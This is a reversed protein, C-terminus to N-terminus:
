YDPSIRGRRRSGRYKLRATYGVAIFLYLMVSYQMASTCLLAVIMALFYLTAKKDFIHSKVFSTLGAAYFVGLYVGGYALINLLGFTPNGKITTYVYNQYIADLNYFGAGFVPYQLFTKWSAAIDSLRIMMSGYGTGSMKIQLVLYIIWIGLIILFPSFAVLVRRVSRAKVNFYYYLSILLAGIIIGKASFTTLLVVMLVIIVFKSQKKKILNWFLTYVLVSAYGPAEMFIGVNRNVTRNLVEQNQLPNEFYINFYSYGTYTWGNNYYQVTHKPMIGALTGCFYFILSIFAILFVVRSYKDLFSELFNVPGLTSSLMVLVTIPLIMQSICSLVGGRNATALLYITMFVIVAVSCLLSNTKVKQRSIILALWYIFGVLCFLKVFLADNVGADYYGTMVTFMSSSALIVCIVMIYIPISNLKVGSIRKLRLKM